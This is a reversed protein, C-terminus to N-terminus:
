KSVESKQRSFKEEGNVFTKAINFDEDFITIDAFKGVELSGTRDYNKLDRAPNKTVTEVVEPIEWGSNERFNKTVENMTAIGGALNGDALRAFKGTVFIKQGGLESEGDGLGCARVSDTILIIEGRSKIRSVIKQAAPHVHVNDTILEVAAHSDLAAGVVGPKRHHFGTQAKFLHTINTAGREIAQIATEYDAASHGISCIINKERCRDIFDFDALEEPAFTIIKIVDDFDSFIEFDPPLINKPDQAGPFKPSVFPGELHAGHIKAGSIKKTGDFIKERINKLARKIIPVPMTMTTPLFTTVGSGPLFEAMRDLADPSEDMTDSGACGHIHINIFGPAVYFNKADIIEEADTDDGIASIKEDFTLSIGSRIFFNGSDDPLIFKGNTIKKM